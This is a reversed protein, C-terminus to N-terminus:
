QKEETRIEAKLIKEVEAINKKEKKERPDDKPKDQRRELKFTLVMNDIMHKARHPTIGFEIELKAQLQAEEQNNIYILRESQEDLWAYATQMLKASESPM